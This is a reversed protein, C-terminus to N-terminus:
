LRSRSAKRLISEAQSVLPADIMRGGLAVAGQGAQSAAEAAQVVARAQAVEAPSPLFGRRAAEVQAPHICFCGGFGMRRARRALRELGSVDMVDAGSGPLGFAVGGAARAAVAVQQAPWDLAATDSAIGLAACYDEAGFVLGAVRPVAHAISAAALVGAPSEILALVRLSGHPRGAAAEAAGCLPELALVGTASDVKPLVVVALGAAAVAALDERLLAPDANVRVLTPVGRGRLVDAAQPLFARAQAKHTAAVSDELDLVVADAGREHARAVFRPQTLPVFLTVTLEALWRSIQGPENQPAPTM